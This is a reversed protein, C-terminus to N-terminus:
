ALFVLLPRWTEQKNPLKQEMRHISVGCGNHLRARERDTKAERDRDRQIQRDRDRQKQRDRDIDRQRQRETDRQRERM